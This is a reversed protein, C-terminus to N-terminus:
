QIADNGLRSYNTKFYNRRRHEHFVFHARLLNEKFFHGECFGVMDYKTRM